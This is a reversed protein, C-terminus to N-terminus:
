LAGRSLRDCFESIFKGMENEAVRVKGLFSNYAIVAPIAAALGAVTAILAEAIGPAVVALTASGRVGMNLFASMVGWVTGLLGIFPTVSGTTALFTLYSEMKSIETNAARNMSSRVREIDDPSSRAKQDSTGAAGKQYFGMESIAALAVAPYPGSPIQKSITALEQIMAGEKFRRLFLGSHRAVSRFSRLKDIIIAWSVVSFVLLVVLIVKAFPSSSLILRFISGQTMCLSHEWVAYM